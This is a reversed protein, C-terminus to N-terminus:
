RYRRAVAITVVGICFALSNPIVLALSSISLGYSIWLLFGVILVALYGISIDRASRRRVIQRIQLLPALAMLVGWSAASAALATTM